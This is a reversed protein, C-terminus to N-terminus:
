DKLELADKKEKSELTEKLDMLELKEEEETTEM